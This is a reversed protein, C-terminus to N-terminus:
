AETTKRYGRVYDVECTKPWPAAGAEPTLQDPLEYVALIFQLPYAPSQEIRRTMVNDVFFDVYTPTWEAAYIHYASADIPLRDQYFEDRLLPDNFPHLGSGVRASGAKIERGFVECICIEGSQEPQEEFGVMFLAVMYGPIPVAKLRTEFYGYLPTYLRVPPQAESVALDPRFHHQGAASGVPGSFCGTQLASVRIGGDYRPSWPEQGPEIHLRLAGASISYRAATRARSSWQPLYYPLWNDRNLAPADFEDSFELRFGPKEPPNAPFDGSPYRDDM